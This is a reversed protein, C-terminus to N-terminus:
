WSVWNPFNNDLFYWNIVIKRDDFHIKNSYSISSFGDLSVYWRQNKHHQRENNTGNPLQKGEQIWLACDKNCWFNVNKEIQNFFPASSLHCNFISFMKCDAYLSQVTQQKTDTEHELYHTCCTLLILDSLIEFAIM